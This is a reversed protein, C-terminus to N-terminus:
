FYKIKKTKEILTSSSDPDVITVRKANLDLPRKGLL